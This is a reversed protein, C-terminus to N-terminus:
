LRIGLAALIQALTSPSPAPATTGGPYGQTSASGGFLGSSTRSTVLPPHGAIGMQTPGFCFGSATPTMYLQGNNVQQQLSSRAANDLNYWNIYPICNQLLGPNMGAQLMFAEQLQQSEIATMATLQALELQAMQMSQQLELYTQDTGAAPVSSAATGAAMARGRFIYYAVLLGGVVLAPTYRRPVRTDAGLIHVDGDAM